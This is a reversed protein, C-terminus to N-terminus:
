VATLTLSCKRPLGTNYKAEQLISVLLCLREKGKREKGKREKGKREKGKREKGKREKGEREKGVASLTLSNRCVQSQNREVFQM